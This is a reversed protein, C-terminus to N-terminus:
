IGKNSNLFKYKIREDKNCIKEIESNKNESGDALCLEWNSYTQNILCEVLEKFYKVPTNYMPVIISIKPNKDFKYKKQEQLEKFNPENFYIWKHYADMKLVSRNKFVVMIKNWIKSICKKITKRIGYKNKYYKIQNKLHKINM